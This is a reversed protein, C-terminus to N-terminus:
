RRRQKQAMARKQEATLWSGHWRHVGFCWPQQTMHDDGARNKDLYSYPYFSGPPLLLWDPRGPLTATSVGPGSHWADLNYIIAHRARLMMIAVAPHGPEAGLVADPAVKNDEWASFGPLHLLPELSRYPEIDSDVYVGGWRWLAELRILGARQAGNQCAHWLDGLEPWDDANLPDRHTMLEWGPHLQRFHEWWAEVQPSTEEPVTRHLIRPIRTPVLEYVPQFQSEDDDLLARVAERDWHAANFLAGRAKNAQFTPERQSNEHTTLHFLHWCTSGMHVMPSGSFTEATVRFGVDEWGWGVFREDFGGCEDWLKRSVIVCSSCADTIVKHVMGPVRWNGRFGGLIKETGEKTLQCRENYGLVLKDSAWALEVGARVAVPDCLVDSDIIVAVDWEDALGAARNIAVSRCFPGVDHHGEVLQWTPHDNEWWKRSFEWLRDRDPIGARRPVLIAVRPETM